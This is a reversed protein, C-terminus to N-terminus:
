KAEKHMAHSRCKSCYKSVELREVTNLVSKETHYNRAHCKSCALTILQRKEKKAM